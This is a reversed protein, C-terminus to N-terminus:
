CGPEGPHGCCPAPAGVRRWSNRVVLRLREGLSGDHDRINALYADVWGRGAM